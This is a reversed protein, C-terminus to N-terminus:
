GYGSCVAAEAGGAKRSSPGREKIEAAPSDYGDAM